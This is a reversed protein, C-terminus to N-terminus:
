IHLGDDAFLNANSILENIIIANIKTLNIFATFTLFSAYNQQLHM